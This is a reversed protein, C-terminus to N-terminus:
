FILCMKSDSLAFQVMSSATTKVCYRRTVSPRVSNGYSTCCKCYSCQPASYFSIIHKISTWCPIMNCLWILNTALNQQKQCNQYKAGGEYIWWKRIIACKKRSSRKWFIVCSSLLSLQLLPVTHCKINTSIKDVAVYRYLFNCKLLLSAIPSHGQLHSLSTLFPATWYSM